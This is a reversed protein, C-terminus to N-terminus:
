DENQMEPTSASLQGVDPANREMYAAAGTLPRCTNCIVAVTDSWLPRMTMSSVQEVQCRGYTLHFRTMDVPGRCLACSEVPGLSPPVAPIPVREDEMAKPVHAVMCACSCYNGIGEAGIVEVEPMPGGFEVREFSRDLSWLLRRFMTSCQCCEFEPYDEEKM